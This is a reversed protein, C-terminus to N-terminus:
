MEKKNQFIDQKESIPLVTCPKSIKRAVFLRPAVSSNPFGLNIANSLTVSGEAASYAVVPIYNKM